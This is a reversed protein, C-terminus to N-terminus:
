GRCDASGLMSSASHLENKLHAVNAFRSRDNRDVNHLLATCRENQGFCARTMHFSPLQPRSQRAARHYSSFSIPYVLENLSLAVLHTSPRTSTPFPSPCRPGTQPLCYYLYHDIWIIFQLIIIVILGNLVKNEFVSRFKM